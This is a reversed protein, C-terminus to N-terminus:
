RTIKRSMIEGALHQADAASGGNGALLLKRTNGLANAVVEVINGIVAAFVLQNSGFQHATALHRSMDILSMTGPVAPLTM